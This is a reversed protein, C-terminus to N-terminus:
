DVLLPGFHREILARSLRHAGLNACVTSATVVDDRPLLFVESADLDIRRDDGVLNVVALLHYVRDASPKNYSGTSTTRVSIARFADGSVAVLDNGSDKIPPAAQVGFQLLRIQVLLEGVTGTLVKDSIRNM